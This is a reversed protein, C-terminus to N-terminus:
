RGEKKQKEELEKLAQKVDITRTTFKVQDINDEAASIINLLETTEKSNKRAKEGVSKQGSDQSRSKRRKKVQVAPEGSVPVPTKAKSSNAKFQELWRKFSRKNEFIGGASFLRDWFGETANVLLLAFCGGIEYSGFYRFLMTLVGSLIGFVIKARPNNPTTAPENLMFVAYFLLASSLLELKLRDFRSVGYIRPFVVAIVACTVLFSVPIHWTIRKEALLFIAVALIVLIFASGMAGPHYGLLLNITSVYPLGGAKIQSAGSLASEAAGSWFSVKTLPAVAALVRNPWNVAAFCMALASLSFPYVDKGGFAHKGLIVTVAVTVVVIYLPVSVPLMMCFVLAAVTSSKDSTDIEQKRIVAMAVDAIRATLLAVACVLLVRASYMVCACLMIPLLALLMDDYHSQERIRVNTKNM